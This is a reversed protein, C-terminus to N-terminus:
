VYICTKRSRDMGHSSLRLGSKVSNSSYVVTNYRHKLTTTKKNLGGFTELVVHDVMLLFGKRAVRTALLEEGSGQDDSM